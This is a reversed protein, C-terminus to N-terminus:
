ALAFPPPDWPSLSLSESPLGDIAVRALVELDIVPTHTHTRAHTYARTRARAYIKIHDSWMDTYDSYTNAYDNCMNSFPPPSPGSGASPEAGRTINLKGTRPCM